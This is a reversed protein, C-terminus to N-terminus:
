PVTHTPLHKRAHGEFRYGMGMERLAEDAAAALAQPSPFTYLHLAGEEGQEEGEEEDGEQEDRIRRKKGASPPPSGMRVLSGLAADDPEQRVVEFARESGERGSPRVTCIYAGYRLRLRDLM